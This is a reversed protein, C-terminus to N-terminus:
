DDGGAAGIQFDEGYGVRTKAGSWPAAPRGQGREVAGTGSQLIAREDRAANARSGCVRAAKTPLKARCEAVEKSRLESRQPFAESGDGVGWGFRKTAIEPVLERNALGCHASHFAAVM